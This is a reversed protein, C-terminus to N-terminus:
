WCCSDGFSRNNAVAVARYSFKGEPRWTSTTAMSM